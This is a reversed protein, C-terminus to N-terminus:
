TTAIKMASNRRARTRSRTSSSQRLGQQLTSNAPSEQDLGYQLQPRRQPTVRPRAVVETM